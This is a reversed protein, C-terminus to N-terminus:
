RLSYELLEYIDKSRVRGDRRFTNELKVYRKVSPAYWYTEETNGINADEDTGSADLVLNVRYADFTGAPVTVKEFAVVEGKLYFKGHKGNSFLMKDATDNWKKGVQLPFALEKLFPSYQASVVDVPNWERTYTAIGSGPNGKVRARARIENGSVEVIDEIRTLDRENALGNTHQWSWRDGVHVDPKDTNQAFAPLAFLIPIAAALIGVLKTMEGGQLAETHNHGMSEM